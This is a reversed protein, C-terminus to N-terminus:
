LHLKERVFLILFIATFLLMLYKTVRATLSSLSYAVGTYTALTFWLITSPPLQELLAIWQDKLSIGAAKGVTDM